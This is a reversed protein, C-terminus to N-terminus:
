IVLCASGGYRTGWAQVTGDEKMAFAGDLLHGECGQTLLCASAELGLQGM